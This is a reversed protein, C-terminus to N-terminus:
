APLSRIAMEMHANVITATRRLGAIKGDIKIMACTESCNAMQSILVGDLVALDLRVSGTPVLMMRIDTMM